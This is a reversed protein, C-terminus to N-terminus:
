NKEIDKSVIFPNQYFFFYANIYIMHDMNHRICMIKGFKEVSNHRKISKLIVNISLIKYFLQHIQDFRISVNTIKIGFCAFCCFYACHRTDHLAQLAKIVIESLQTIRFGYNPM